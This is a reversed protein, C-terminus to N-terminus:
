QGFGPIRLIQVGILQLISVSFIIFVLGILASSIMEKAESTKKPDGSSTSLIFSGALIILLAVGGGILLGIRLLVKIMQMPDTPICGVATWIGGVYQCNQCVAVVSPQVQDCLRFPQVTIIRKSCLGMEAVSCSNKVVVINQIPYYIGLLAINVQCKITASGLQPNPITFSAPGPNGIRVDATKVGNIRCHVEGRIHEDKSYSVLLPITPNDWGGSIDENAYLAIEIHIPQGVHLCDPPSCTNQGPNDQYISSENRIWSYAYIDEASMLLGLFLLCLLLINFVIKKM